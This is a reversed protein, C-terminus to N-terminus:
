TTTSHNWMTPIDSTSSASQGRVPLGLLLGHLPVLPRTPHKSFGVSQALGSVLRSTM